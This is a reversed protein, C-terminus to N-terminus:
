HARNAAQDIFALLLKLRRELVDPPLMDYLAADDELEGAAARAAMRLDYEVIGKAFLGIKGDQGGFDIDHILGASDAFDSDSEFSKALSLVIGVDITVRKLAVGFSSSSKLLRRFVEAKHAPMDKLVDNICEVIVSENLVLSDRVQTALSAQREPARVANSNYMNAIGKLGPRLEGCLPAAARVSRNLTYWICQLLL